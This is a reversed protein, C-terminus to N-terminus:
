CELEMKLRGTQEYLAAQLAEADQDTRERKSSFAEEAHELLQSKWRSILTPHAVYRAALV